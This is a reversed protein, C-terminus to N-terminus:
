HVVDHRKWEHSHLSFVCLYVLCIHCFVTVHSPFVDERGKDSIFESWHIASEVLQQSRSLHCIPACWSPEQRCTSSVGSHRSRLTVREPRLWVAPSSFHHTFMWMKQKQQKNLCHSASHQQPNLFFARTAAHPRRPPQQKRAPSTLTQM